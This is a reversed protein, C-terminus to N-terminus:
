EVRSTAPSCSGPPTASDARDCDRCKTNPGTQGETRGCVFHQRHQFSGRRTPCLQSSSPLSTPSHAARPCPLLSWLPGLAAHLPQAVALCPSILGPLSRPSEPSGGARNRCQANSKIRYYHHNNGLEEHLRPHDLCPQVSSLASGSSAWAPKRGTM